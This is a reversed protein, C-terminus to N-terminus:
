AEGGSLRRVDDRIIRQYEDPDSECTGVQEMHALKANLDLVHAVPFAIIADTAAHIPVWLKDEQQQLGRAEFARDIRALKRERWRNAITLRRAARRTEQWRPDATQLDTPTSMISKARSVAYPNATDFTYPPTDEDLVNRYGPVSIRTHPIAEQATRNEEVAPNWVDKYWQCLVADAKAYQDLLGSLAPSVTLPEAGKAEGALALGGAVAAAGAGYALAGTGLRLLSRRTTSTTM